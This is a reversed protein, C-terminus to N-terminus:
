QGAATAARKKRILEAAQLFFKQALDQNATAMDGYSNVIVQVQLVDGFNPPPKALGFLSLWRDKITTFRESWRIDAYTRTLDPEHIPIPRGAQDFETFWGYLRRVDERTMDFRITELGAPSAEPLRGDERPVWGVAKYCLRLDHWEPFPYDFSVIAKHGAKTKYTWTRSHAGNYNDADRVTFDSDTERVWPGIQQPMDEATWGNYAQVLTSETTM